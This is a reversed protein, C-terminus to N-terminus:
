SFWISCFTRETHIIVFDLSAYNNIDAMVASFSIEDIFTKHMPGQISQIFKPSM